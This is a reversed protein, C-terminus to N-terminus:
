FNRKGDGEAVALPPFAILCGRAPAQTTRCYLGIPESPTTNLLALSRGRM